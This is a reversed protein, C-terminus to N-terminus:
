LLVEFFEWLKVKFLFSYSLYDLKGLCILNRKFKPIYKVKDFVKVRNDHLKFKVRSVDKVKVKSGDALKIQYEKKGWNCWVIGEKFLYLFPLCFGNDM